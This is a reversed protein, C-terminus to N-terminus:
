VYPYPNELKQDPRLLRNIQHCELSELQLRLYSILKFVQVSGIQKRSPQRSFGLIITVECIYYTKQDRIIHIIFGLFSDQLCCRLCFFCCDAAFNVRLLRITIGPVM